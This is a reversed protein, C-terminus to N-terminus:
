EAIFTRDGNRIRPGQHLHSGSGQRWRGPRGRQALGSRDSRLDIRDPPLDALEGLQQRLKAAPLPGPLGAPRPLLGDDPNQNPHVRGPCASASRRQGPVRRAFM